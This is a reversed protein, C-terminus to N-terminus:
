IIEWREEKYLIIDKQRIEEEPHTRFTFKKNEQGYLELNQRVTEKGTNNSISCRPEYIVAWVEESYGDVPDSYTKREIVIKHNLSGADPIYKRKITPM